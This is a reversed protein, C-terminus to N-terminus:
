WTPVNRTKMLEDPLTKGRVAMAMVAAKRAEERERASMCKTQPRNSGVVHERRCVIREERNGTVIGHIVELSNYAMLQDRRSLEDLTERGALLKRVKTQETALDRLDVENLKSLRADKAVVAADISDLNEIIASVSTTEVRSDTESASIMLPMLGLSLCTALVVPKLYRM